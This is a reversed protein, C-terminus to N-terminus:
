RETVAALAQRWEVYHYNLDFTTHLARLSAHFREYAEQMWVTTMPDCFYIRCGFPRIKHVTCLGDAQYPCGAPQGLIGLPSTSAPNPGNPITPAGVMFAAMELPTVFLLHGYEDFRCCRGSQDCRPGVRQIEADLDAYLRRLEAWAAPVSADRVAIAFASAQEPTLRIM